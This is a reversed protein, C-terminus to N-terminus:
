TRGESQVFLAATAMNNRRLLAVIRARELKRGRQMLEIVEKKRANDRRSDGVSFNSLHFPTM